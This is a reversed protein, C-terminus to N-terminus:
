ESAQAPNQKPSRIVWGQKEHVAREGKRIEQEIGFLADRPLGLSDLNAMVETLCDESRMASKTWIARNVACPVYAHMVQAHLASRKSIQEYTEQYVSTQPKSVDNLAVSMSFYGLGLLTVIGLGLAAKRVFSMSSM